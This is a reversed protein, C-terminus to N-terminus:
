ARVIKRSVWRSRTPDLKADPSDAGTVVVLCSHRRLAGGHSGPPRRPRITPAPNNHATTPSEAAHEADGEAVDVDDEGAAVDDEAVDPRGAAPPGPPGPPPPELARDPGAAPPDDPVISM